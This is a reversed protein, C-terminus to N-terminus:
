SQGTREQAWVALKERFIKANHRIDVPFSPHFLIDRISESLHSTQALELLETRLTEQQAGTMKNSLCEIIIVPKQVGGAVVGVLASRKVQDHRNFVAETCVSYLRNNPTDVRHAKRGCFWLLGDEDIYGLDGMRHWIDEEDRMKALGTAEDRAFYAKTVVPGKVCIEGIEMAPLEKSQAFEPIVDDVVQIIKVTNCTLPRGVCYGQGDITKTGTEARVKRGSIWSVPLSETAGYPIGVDASEEMIKSMKHVLAPSIPAGAMLVTHLSKLVKQKEICFDSVRTWFAPSGFSYTVQHEEIIRVMKDADAFAPRTPDMDPIIVKAGLATSFLAFLPFVPLDVDEEGINWEKRILQTQTDFIGHTYVVGKAPGTSGTTFLIAATEESATDAMEFTDKAEAELRALNYGGWFWRTGVTIVTQVSRFARRHLLRLVHALEIGIFAEPRVSEVAHIFNKRGMGPDILLPVAGIKFLAFSIAIFDISPRVMVMTRVGRSIGAKVLGNAIRNTRKELEGFSIQRSLGSTEQVQSDVIALKNPFRTALPPLYHAINVSSYQKVSETQAAM